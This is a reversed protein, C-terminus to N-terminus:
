WDGAYGVEFPEALRVIRARRLEVLQRIHLNDHAVWSAFMAGAKMSGYQNTHEAQWDPGDLNKLWALSQHREALFNDLMEALDRENYARTTVWSAPDIPPWPEAPRHLIM